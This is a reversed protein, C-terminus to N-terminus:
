HCLPSLATDRSLNIQRHQQVTGTFRSDAQCRLDHSSSGSDYADFRISNQSTFIGSVYIIDGAGLAFNEVINEIQTAANSWTDYPPTDSGSSEVHYEAAGVFPVLLLLWIWRM